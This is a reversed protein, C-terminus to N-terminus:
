RTGKREGNLANVFDRALGHWQEATQPAGAAGLWLAGAWYAFNARRMALVRCGQADAVFGAFAPAVAPDAFVATMTVGEGGGKPEEFISVIGRGVDESVDGGHGRMASVDLGPGVSMGEGLREPCEFSVENRFFPEGRRMAIRCTMRGLESFAPYVLRFECREDSNTVVECSEWNAPHRWEGGSLVGIGGVGRGAGVTYNDFCKGNTNHHWDGYIGRGRLLKVVFNEKTAKNFVDIGSWKHIDGPGYARFGTMDNEWFFDNAREPAEGCLCVTPPGCREISVRVALRGKGRAEFVRYRGNRNCCEAGTDVIEGATRYTCACGRYRVVLTKGDNSVDTASEGDFAFAPLSMAVEGPGSLESFLGEGTLRCKWVLEGQRWNAWASKEDGGNGDPVLRGDGVPAFALSRVNQRETKYNPKKACPTSLCITAPAGRRQLRGLGDCDYHDDANYDFQASYEGASLMVLHFCPTTAFACPAVASPAAERPVEDAFLYAMMAWSGMTVMYKDFYAYAECGIGSDRPYLNKVHRVPKAALWERMSEVAMRAAARFRAATAADGRKVARAAYWECVAAYFTNNHLFQNSRGGYPIEGSASLMSLTPEAAADLLEGLKAASPGGYGFHLILM